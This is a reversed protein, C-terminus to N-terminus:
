RTWIDWFIHALSSPSSNTQKGDRFIDHFWRISIFPWQDDSILTFSIAICVTTVSSVWSLMPLLGDESSQEILIDESSHVFHSSFRFLREYYNLVYSPVIGFHLVIVFTTCVARRSTPFPITNLQLSNKSLFFGWWAQLGNVLSARILCWGLVPGAFPQWQQKKKM